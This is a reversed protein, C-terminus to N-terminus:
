RCNSLSKAKLNWSHDIWSHHYHDNDFPAIVFSAGMPGWCKSPINSAMLSRSDKIESQNEHGLQAFVERKERTLKANGLLQIGGESVPMVEYKRWCEVSMTSLVVSALWHSRSCGMCTPSGFVTWHESLRNEAIGDNDGGADPKQLKQESMPRRPRIWDGIDRTDGCKNRCHLRSYKVAKLTSALRAYM